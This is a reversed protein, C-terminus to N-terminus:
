PAFQQLRSEGRGGHLLGKSPDPVQPVEVIILMGQGEPSGADLVLEPSGGADPIGEAVFPYRRVDNSARETRKLLLVIEGADRVAREL